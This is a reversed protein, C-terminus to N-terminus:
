KQEEEYNYYKLKNYQRITNLLPRFYNKEDIIM